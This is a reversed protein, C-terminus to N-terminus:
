KMETSTNPIKKKELNLLSTMTKLFKLVGVTASM